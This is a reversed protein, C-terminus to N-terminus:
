GGCARLGASRGPDAAVSKAVAVDGM